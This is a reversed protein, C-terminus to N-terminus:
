LEASSELAEFQDALAQGAEHWREDLEVLPLRLAPSIRGSRALLWKLPVPNSECALFRYLSALSEDISASGEIQGEVALRCLQAMTSPVVNAAVSIVGSAGNLMATRASPDDGSLVRIGAGVLLRVREMDAVAEKIAVIGPHRALEIMSEPALDVGTRGPVNYPILPLAVTDAVALYHAILGRQPPRNYYPTVVLAADAGLSAALRTRAVTSRTSASGTGAIVPVRGDATEVAASLLETFEAEDLNPSEGTTGAVVLASSGSVIQWEVLARWSEIDLTSDPTLPTVLAPISGKFM